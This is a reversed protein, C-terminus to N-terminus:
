GEVPLKRTFFILGSGFVDDDIEFGFNAPYGTIFNKIEEFM